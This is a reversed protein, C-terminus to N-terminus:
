SRSPFIGQLAIIYRVGQYPSRRYIQLNSGSNNVKVEINSSNGVSLLSNNGKQFDDPSKNPDLQFAPVEPQNTPLQNPNLVIQENGGKQGHKINSLGPGQGPGIPARGRLDPLGFTTRGDGGYTTGLISFLAQNSNISLLQGECFAWDRPAFNGAFLKIEALMQDGQANAPSYSLFILFFIPIISKKFM